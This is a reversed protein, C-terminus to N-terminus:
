KKKVEYTVSLGKDPHYTWRVSYKDNEDTQVGQLSSTKNMRQMLADTFGLDKNLTEIAAAANKWAYYDKETMDKLDKGYDKDDPNTDVTLYSGDAGIEFWDEGVYESSGYLDKFNRTHSGSVLVFIIVVVVCAAIATLLKKSPAVRPKEGANDDAKTGCYPCFQQTEEIKAGCKTCIRGTTGPRPTGCVACFMQGNQFPTRCRPCLEEQTQEESKETVDAESENSHVSADAPRNPCNEAACGGNAEWCAKHHLTGCVQCEVTEQAEEIETNCHPCIKTEDM